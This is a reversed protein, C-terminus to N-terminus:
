VIVDHLHINEALLMLHYSIYDLIRWKAINNQRFAAAFEAQQALLLDCPSALGRDFLRDVEIREVVARCHAEVARRVEIPVLSKRRYYGSAVNAADLDAYTTTPEFM